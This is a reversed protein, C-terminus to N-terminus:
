AFYDKYQSYYYTSDGYGFRAQKRANVQSLVAGAMNVRGRPLLRLASRVADDSTKRWRVVFVLADALTALIRTDAIPLIPATDLVILTFRSRLQNILEQMPPGSFHEGPEIKEGNLPLLWVGSPEDLILADDIAAEGRLVEMLGVPRPEIIMKNVTRRRLDCDILVVSHGDRAATRALGAAITSKGEQPMASTVVIVQAVVDVAYNISTLLSRFAEAFASHPREILADIPPGKWKFVSGVLPVAGLYPIALRSEVDEGTTMGRFALESIFAAALGAGIGLVAALFMNLVIIPSSPSSPLQAATITRADAQETGEQAALQKYRSLYGEYLAQSTEAKRSLDDFGVLAQNSSKLRKGGRKNGAEIQARYEELYSPPQMGSEEFMWVPIDLCRDTPACRRIGLLLPVFDDYSRPLEVNVGVEQRGLWRRLKPALRRFAPLSEARSHLQDADEIWCCSTALVGTLHAVLTEADERRGDNWLASVVAAAAQELDLRTRTRIWTSLSRVTVNPDQMANSNAALRELRENFAKVSQPDDVSGGRVGLQTPYRISPPPMDSSDWRRSKYELFSSITPFDILDGPEKMPTTSARQPMPSAPLRRNAPLGDGIVMGLRTQLTYPLHIPPPLEM